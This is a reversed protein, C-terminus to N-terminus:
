YHADIYLINVGEGMVNGPKTKQLSLARLSDRRRCIVWSGNKM